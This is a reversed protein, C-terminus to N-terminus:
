GGISVRDDTRALKLANVNYTLNKSRRFLTYWESIKGDSIIDSVYIIYLPTM